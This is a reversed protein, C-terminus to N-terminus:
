DEDMNAKQKNKNAWVNHDTTKSQPGDLEMHEPDLKFGSFGWQRDFHGGTPTNPFGEHDPDGHIIKGKEMSPDLTVKVHYWHNIAIGRPNWYPAMVSPQVNFASDLAKSTVDMEVKEGRKLKEKVAEPLALTMYFQTWAWHHNYRQDIPKFLEAATFTKGGDLSVDVREIKRGGGSWAVGKLTIDSANKAGIISNQPPNCVFSTVPQEHIIPGQDLRAPPWEALDKEFTIDPAFGLYSKCQYSKSSPTNALRLKHIWKVQRAGVHGPILLRVPYGHDRPLEEGNMEYALIVDGLGDVAKEIPFSGGYTYGTEDHDYGEAQIHKCPPLVEGLAIADVDLGSDKLVDRLRAGGWKATSMAGIVWHPSIFIKHDKDHLDERRNGACQLTTVVEHKPYKKIDELTLKRKKVGKGSIILRYEDAEIVPVALHNRVYFLENPTFYDNTLLDIKPEGCFPKQTCPLLDKHRVPDTEFMDGFPVKKNAAAEEPTLNGIRYKEIWEVVHGRLHQRYVDWYPELDQGAAMLLRPNGGPHGQAFPTMDYVGGRFTFWMSDDDAHEAVEEMTYTPLDPRPPPYNNPHIQNDSAVKPSAAAELSTPQEQQLNVVTAGLATAAAAVWLMRRDISLPGIQSQTETAMARCAIKASRSRLQTMMVKRTVSQM